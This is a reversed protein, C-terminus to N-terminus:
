FCGSIIVTFAGVRSTLKVSFRRFFVWIFRFGRVEIEEEGAEEGLEEMVRSEGDESAAVGKKSANRSEIVKDVTQRRQKM